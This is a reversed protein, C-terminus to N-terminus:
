SGVQVAPPQRSVGTRTPVEVLLLLVGLAFLPWFIRKSVPRGRVQRVVSYIGGVLLLVAVASAITPGVHQWFSLRPQDEVFQGSVFMASMRHM